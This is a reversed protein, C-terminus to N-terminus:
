RFLGHGFGAAYAIGAGLNTGAVRDIHNFNVGGGIAADVLDAFQAFAGAVTRRAIAEFDVDEVLRVLDGVSGEIREKFRQLLRGAVHDEHHGGRLGFINGLGDAGAALVETKARHLEFVDHPLEAVDYGFFLDGGVVVSEGQEGFRAVARQAVREGDEVLGDGGGRVVEREIGNAAQDAGSRCGCQFGYHLRDGFTRTFFDQHHDIFQDAFPVTGGMERALQHAEQPIDRHRFDRAFVRPEQLNRGVLAGAHATDGFEEALFVQCPMQLDHQAGMSFESVALLLAEVEFQSQQFHRM